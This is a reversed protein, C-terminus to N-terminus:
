SSCISALRNSRNGMRSSRKRFPDSCTDVLDAVNWPDPTDRIGVQPVILVHVPTSTARPLFVGLGVKEKQALTQLLSSFVRKSGAYAKGTHM